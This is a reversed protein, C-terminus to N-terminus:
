WGQRPRAGYKELIRNAALRRQREDDRTRDSLSFGGAVTLADPIVPRDLRDLNALLESRRARKAADEKANREGIGKGWCERGVLHRDERNAIKALKREYGPPPKMISEGWGPQRRFASKTRGESGRPKLYALRKDWTVFFLEVGSDRPDDSVTPDSLVIRYTKGEKDIFDKGEQRFDDADVEIFHQRAQRLRWEDAPTLGCINAVVGDTYASAEDLVRATPLGYAFPKTLPDSM